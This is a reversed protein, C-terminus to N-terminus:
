GKVVPQASICPEAAELCEGCSAALHRASFFRRCRRCRNLRWLEDRIPISQIPLDVSGAITQRRCSLFPRFQLNPGNADVGQETRQSAKSHLRVALESAVSRAREKPGPLHSLYRCGALQKLGLFVTIARKTSHSTPQTQIPRSKM